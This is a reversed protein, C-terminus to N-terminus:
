ETTYEIRIVHTSYDVDANIGKLCTICKAFVSAATNMAAPKAVTRVFEKRYQENKLLLIMFASLGAVGVIALTRDKTKIIDCKKM